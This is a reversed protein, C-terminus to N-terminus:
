SLFEGAAVNTLALRAIVTNGTTTAARAVPCMHCACRATAKEEQARLGIAGFSLALALLFTTFKKM